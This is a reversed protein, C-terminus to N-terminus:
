VRIGTRVSRCGMGTADALMTYCRGARVLIDHRCGLAAQIVVSHLEEDVALAEFERVFVRVLIGRISEGLDGALSELETIGGLGDCRGRERVVDDIVRLQGDIDAVVVDNGGVHGAVLLTRRGDDQELEGGGIFRVLREHRKEGAVEVGQLRLLKGIGKEWWSEMPESTLSTGMPSLTSFAMANTRSFVVVGTSSM